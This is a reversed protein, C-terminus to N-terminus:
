GYEALNKSCLAFYGSPPAFEFNGHGDADTNGSSIAFSPQGYNNSQVGNYGYGGMVYGTSTDISTFAATGSNEASGNKFFSIEGDDANFAIGIIDDDTFSNGYSSASGLNKKQGNSRYVISKTDPNGNDYTQPNIIGVAALGGVDVIKVEMYWKGKTVLFTGFQLLNADSQTSLTNGESFKTGVFGNATNSRFFLPNMTAFNNTPTDTTVDTAAINTVAFHTGTGSTDAGIGSANASTGTQKFELFFGNTGYSGGGYRIPVWIGNDDVKGFDTPAKATGDILNIDAMYGDFAVYGQNFENDNGIDFVHSNANVDTDLDEAATTNATHPQLVGNVYLQFRNNATSDTTDCRLVLHYWAAVDRFVGDTTELVDYGSGDYQHWSLQDGSNFNFVFYNSDNTGSNFIVQNTGLQSRKVWASFTWIRRNGGSQTDNLSPSDGDNFRLSNDIEYGSVSNAPMITPFVM